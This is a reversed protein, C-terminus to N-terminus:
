PYLRARGSANRHRSTWQSATSRISAKRVTSGSYAAQAEESIHELHAVKVAVTHSPCLPTGLYIATSAGKARYSLRWEMGGCQQSAFTWRDYRRHDQARASPAFSSHRPPPRAHLISASSQSLLPLAHRQVDEAQEEVPETRDERLADPSPLLRVGDVSPQQSARSVLLPSTNGASGQTSAMSPCRYCEQSSSGDASRQRKSPHDGAPKHRDSCHRDFAAQLSHFATQLADHRELILQHGNGLIPVPSSPLLVSDENAARGRGAHKEDEEHVGLLLLSPFLPRGYRVDSSAYTCTRPKWPSSTAVMSTMTLLSCHYRRHRRRRCSLLHPHM